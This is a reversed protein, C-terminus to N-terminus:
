RGEELACAVKLITKEDFWKGMVQVGIPMDNGDVGFPVSIAPFGCLNAPVTYLDDMYMKIEDIKDSLRAPGCKTVPALIADFENFHRSFEDKILRRVKLAKLYHEDYFGSSLVYEGLKIRKKVEESFGENRTKEYMSSLDNYNETRYGYKVGDYRALNSSAEACAIIYYAMAAQEVYDLSIETVIAGKKALEKAAKKVADKIEPDLDATFYEKPLAIKMGNVNGNLESTFDYDKRKVSTSDKNDYAAVVELLYACDAVNKCIAGIQELSSAYAVLGYRSVTGYTPKIGVLGCYAAPQRVSGGTDSGLAAICMNSAVAACSGGSSGGTIYEKNVPNKTAGFCSNTTTSGMGFEDMNTKGIIIADEELLREIATASYQGNYGKLIRSGCTIPMNKVSINDKIAVPIGALLGVKEDNDIRNQIEKAREYAGEKDIHIFANIHENQSEINFFVSDLVDKIKVNGTKIEKLLDM